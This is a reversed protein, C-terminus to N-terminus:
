RSADFRGQAEMPVGGRATSIAAAAGTTAITACTRSLRQAAKSVPLGASLPDSSDREEENVCSTTLDEGATVAFGLDAVPFRLDFCTGVGPETSACITGGSRRMFAVVQPLGLGTGADGKTTFYPDFLHEAVEPPMGSGQDIVRVRVWRDSSPESDGLRGRYEDTVIWVEGGAPMADRANVVLNLVASIFQGTDLRCNPLAKALDLRIRIDLGAAYNLLTISRALLENIGQTRVPAEGGRAFVLLEDTLRKGRRVAEEIAAFALASRDVDGGARSAINAGSQIVTLITRFDHALGATMQGLAAARESAFNTSSQETSQIDASRKLLDGGRLECPQSSHDPPRCLFSTM